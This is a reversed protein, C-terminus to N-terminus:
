GGQVRVHLNAGIAYNGSLPGPVAATLPGYAILLIVNLDQGQLGVAPTSPYDSTGGPYCIYLSSQNASAPFLGAAYPPTVGSCNSLPNRLTSPGLGGAALQADVASKIDADDLYPNTGTGANFFAGRRAGERVANQGVDAFHMARTLDILGGFLVVLVVASIAFEVLSQGSSAGNRTQHM